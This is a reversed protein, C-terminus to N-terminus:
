NKVMLQKIFQWSIGDDDEIRKFYTTMAHANGHSDYVNITNNFDSTKQPNDLDFEVDEDIKTRADLNVQMMVTDSAQPPVSNTVIRIDTLKLLYIVMKIQWSAKFVAM